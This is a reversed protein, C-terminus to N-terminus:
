EWFFDRSRLFFALLIIASFVASSLSQWHSPCDVPVCGIVGVVVVVLSVDSCDKDSCAVSFVCCHAM